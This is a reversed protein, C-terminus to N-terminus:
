SPTCSSDQLEIVLARLAMALPLIGLPFTMSECVLPSKICSSKSESCWSPGSGDAGLGAGTGGAGEGSKSYFGHFVAKHNSQKPYCHRKDGATNTGERKGIASM